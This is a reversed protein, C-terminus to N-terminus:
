AQQGGSPYKPFTVNDAVAVVAPARYRGPVFLKSLIEMLWEIKGLIWDDKRTETMPAVVRFVAALAGLVTMLLLFIAGWDWSLPNWDVGPASIAAPSTSLGDPSDGVGADLPAIEAAGQAYAVARLGFSGAVLAAALCFPAIWPKM